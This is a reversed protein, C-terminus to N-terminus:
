NLYDERLRRVIEVLGMISSPKRFYAAAGHLKCYQVDEENGSTTLIVVPINTFAPDAKIKHLTSRGDLVLMNLDLIVLKPTFGQDMKERLSKMLQAGDLLFHTEVERPCVAEIAEQFFFQDDPDDEAVLVLARDGM